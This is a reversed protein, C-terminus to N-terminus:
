ISTITGITMLSTIILIAIGFIKIRANKIRKQLLLVPIIGLVFSMGIIAAMSGFSQLFLDIIDGSGTLFTQFLGVTIVIFVLIKYLIPNEKSLPVKQVKTDNDNGILADKKQEPTTKSLDSHCYKCLVADYQIEEACFPCKKISM